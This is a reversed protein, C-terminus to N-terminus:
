KKYLHFILLLFSNAIYRSYGRSHCHLGQSIKKAFVPDFPNKKVREIVSFDLFLFFSDVCVPIYLKNCLLHSLICLQNEVSLRYHTFLAKLKVTIENTKFVSRTKLPCFQQLLFLHFFLYLFFPYSLFEFFGFFDM